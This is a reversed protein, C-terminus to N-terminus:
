DCTIQPASASVGSADADLEFIVPTEAPVNTQNALLGGVISGGKMENANVELYSCGDRAVVKIKWCGNLAYDACSFESSGLWRYAVSDSYLMYGQHWRNAAAYAAAAARARAKARAQAAARAKAQARALARREVARARAAAVLQAHTKKPTAQRSPTSVQAGSASPQAGGGGGGSAAVSIAAILLLTAVGAVGLAAVRRGRRWLWKTLPVILWLGLSFVALYRSLESRFFPTNQVVSAAEDRVSAKTDAARSHASPPEEASAIPRGCNPCFKTNPRLEVGCNDCKKM